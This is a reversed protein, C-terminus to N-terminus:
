RHRRRRSRPRHPRRRSRVAPWRAPPYRRFLQPRRSQAAPRRAWPSRPFLRRPPPQPRPPLRPSRPPPAPTAAPRAAPRPAAAPTTAAPRSACPRRRPGARHQLRPPSRWQPPSRRSSRCRCRSSRVVPSPPSARYPGPRNRWEHRHRGLGCPDRGSPRSPSPDGRARGRRRHDVQPRQPARVFPRRSPARRHRQPGVGRPAPSPARGTGRTGCRGPRGGGGSGPARGSSNELVAHAFHPTRQRSSASAQEDNRRRSSHRPM